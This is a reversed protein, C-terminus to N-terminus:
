KPLVMCKRNQEDHKGRRRRRPEGDEGDEEMAELEEEEMQQQQQMDMDDFDPEHEWQPEVDARRGRSARRRPVVGDEAMRLHRERRRSAHGVVRVRHTSSSGKTVHM